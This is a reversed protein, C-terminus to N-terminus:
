ITTSDNSSRRRKHHFFIKKRFYCNSIKNRRARKNRLEINTIKYAANPGLMGYEDDSNNAEENLAILGIHFLASETLYNNEVKKIRNIYKNMNPANMAFARYRM